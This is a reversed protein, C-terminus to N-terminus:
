LATGDLEMKALPSLDLINRGRVYEMTLVRSSTYDMIPCPVVIREYSALNRALTELNAAERLYDLEALLTRRGEDLMPTFRYRQGMETHADLFETLEQLADFDD